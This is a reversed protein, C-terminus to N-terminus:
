SKSQKRKRAAFGLGMLAGGMLLMTSPEPVGTNYTYTISLTGQISGNPGYSVTGSGGGTGGASALDTANILSALISGGGATQWDAFDSFNSSSSSLPGFTTPSGCTQGSTSPAISMSCLPSSTEPPSSMSDGGLGTITLTETAQLNSLSFSQTTSTNTAFPIISGQVNSLTISINTLAGWNTNFYSLGGCTAAGGAPVTVSCSGGSVTNGFMTSVSFFSLLVVALLIKKTTSM